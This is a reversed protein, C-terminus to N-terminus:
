NITLLKDDKRLCSGVVMIVLAFVLAALQDGAKLLIWYDTCQVTSQSSAAVVDLDAEWLLLAFAERFLPPLGAHSEKICEEVEEEGGDNDGDDVLPDRVLGDVGRQWVLEKVVHVPHGPGECDTLDITQDQDSEPEDLPETQFM